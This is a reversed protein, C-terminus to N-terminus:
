TSRCRIRRATYHDITYWGSHSGGWGYNIHYELLDGEIRWGDCVVAHGIIRYVMPRDHFIEEQVIDFWGDPSHDAREERDITPDYRFYEPLATLLKYTYATSACHGYDMDVSVGVTLCLWALASQETGSCGGECDDPMHDWDYPIEFNASMNGGSTSGGCSDDGDWMYDHDGKGLVPWRHYRM